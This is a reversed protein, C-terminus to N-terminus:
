NVEAAVQSAIRDNQARLLGGFVMVLGSILVAIMSLAYWGEAKSPNNSCMNIWAVIYAPIVFGAGEWESGPEKFWCYLFHVGFLGLFGWLLLFIPTSVRRRAFEVDFVERREGELRNRVKIQEATQLKM